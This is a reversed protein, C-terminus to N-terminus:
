KARREFTENQLPIEISIYTGQGPNSDVLLKGGCENAREQMGSLGGTMKEITNTVDFGVGNDEVQLGLCEEDAWLSVTVQTAGAYRAINTLSEQL